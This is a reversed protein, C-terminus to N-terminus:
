AFDYGPTPFAPWSIISSEKADAISRAQATQQFNNMAVRRDESDPEGSADLVTLAIGVWTLADKVNALLGFVGMGSDILFGAADNLAATAEESRLDLLEIIATVLAMFASLLAENAEILDEIGDSLDGFADKLAIVKQGFEIASDSRWNAHIYEQALHSDDYGQAAAPAVDNLAHMSDRVASMGVRIADLDETTLVTMMSELDPLGKELAERLAVVEDIEYTFGVKEVWVDDPSAWGSVEHRWGDGIPGGEVPVWPQTRHGANEVNMTVSRNGDTVSIHYGVSLPGYLAPVMDSRTVEIQEIYQNMVEIAEDVATLYDADLPKDTM